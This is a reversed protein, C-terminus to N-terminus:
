VILVNDLLRKGGLGVAATITVPQHRPHTPAFLFQEGCVTEGTQWDFLHVYELQMGPDTSLEGAVLTHVQDATLSGAATLQEQAHRLARYLLPARAREDATLYANRSSMALGSSERVTPVVNVDIGMHLDRVMRRIVACQLADKQGFFVADPRVINFLISCVTAVGRFFGPRRAGEGVQDIGDIDVFTASPPHQPYIEEVGPVFVADVCRTAALRACDEEVRRPYTDLDEHAAFQRPNVFISAVVQDCQRNAEKVLQLHGDHLAGMTPVFGVSRRNSDAARRFARVEHVSKLVQLSPSAAATSSYSRARMAAAHQNNSLSSASRVMTTLMHNVPAAIGHKQALKAVSGNIQNIETARGSTLARLMSSRNPATVRSIRLVEELLEDDDFQEGTECRAVAAVEHVVSRLLERLSPEDTLAGNRVDLLATLPNIAANVCLKRWRVVAARRQDSEVRTPVGARNLQAALSAAYDVQSPLPLLVTEGQTGTHIVRGPSHLMAAQNTVAVLVRERGVVAAVLDENGLGNQMTVVMGDDSLLQPLYRLAAQTREGSTLLLVTQHRAAAPPLPFPLTSQASGAVCGVESGADPTTTTTTTAMTTTPAILQMSSITNIREPRVLTDLSATAEDVTAKSSPRQVYLGHASVAQLHDLHSSVLTTQETLALRAAMLSGLSGGGVVAFRSPVFPRGLCLRQQEASASWDVVVPEDKEHLQPEEQKQSPEQQGHKQSPQQDDPKQGPAEQDLTEEEVGLQTAVRQWQDKSLVTSHEVSPFRRERVDDVYGRLASDIQSALDDYQRVFRPPNPYLGLTDHWVLVQGGTHVGAGIGITPVGLRQSVLRAVQEPVMELVVASAGAEQLALADELLAQAESATRGQVRFGGVSSAAQPCLGVHGIVVIGADTLARVLHASRRGGELKVADVRGEKLLRAANHLASEVTLYSGFPLDGLVMSHAPKAAAVAACHHVMQDMTVSVTDEHGLVVMGVSDGVLIIDVGARDAASTNRSLCTYNYM